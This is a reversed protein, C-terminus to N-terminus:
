VCARILVRPKGRSVTGRINERAFIQQRPVETDYRLDVHDVTFRAHMRTYAIAIYFRALRRYFRM